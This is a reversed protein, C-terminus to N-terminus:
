GWCVSRRPFVEGDGVAGSGGSAQVVGVVAGESDGLGAGAGEPVFDFVKVLLPLGPAFGVAFAVSEGDVPFALCDPEVFCAVPWGPVQGALDDTDPQVQVLGGSRQGLRGAGGVVALRRWRIPDGGVVLGLRLDVREWRVRQRREGLDVDVHEVHEVHQPHASGHARSSRRAGRRLDPSVRAAPGSRAHLTSGPHERRHPARPDAAASCLRRDRTRHTCRGM